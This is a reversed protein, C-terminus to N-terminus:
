WTGVSLGSIRSFHRTNRTVVAEGALLAIAGVMADMHGVPQGGRELDAAIRSYEEGAPGDLPLIDLPGLVTRVRSLARPADDARHAGRFLEAVNVATTVVSERQSALFALKRLADPHGRILGVLCDTDLVVV